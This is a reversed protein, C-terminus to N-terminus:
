NANVTRNYNDCIAYYSYFPVYGILLMLIPNETPANNVGSAQAILIQQEYFKYQWYITYIGCTILGLLFGKIFSPIEAVGRQAAIENNTKAMSYWWYLGYIGCTVLTLLFVVIWNYNKKDM